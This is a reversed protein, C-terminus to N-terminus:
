GLESLEPYVIGYAGPLIQFYFVISLTDLLNGGTLFYIIIFNGLYWFIISLFLTSNQKLLIKTKILRRRM